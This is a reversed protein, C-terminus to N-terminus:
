KWYRDAQSEEVHIYLAVAIGITKAVGWNLELIYFECPKGLLYSSALLHAPPDTVTNM